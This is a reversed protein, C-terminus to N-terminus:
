DFRRKIFWKDNLSFGLGMRFYNEATLGKTKTGRTGYEFSLHVRDTYRKFPLSVGATFGMYKLDTQRVRVYDKGYFAGFRYTVRNFYKYISEPDPTVQMGVNMRWSLDVVSDQLDGFGRFQSWQSASFDIGALWKDTNSLTVGFSYAMPLTVSGNENETFFATDRAISGKYLRTSMIYEDRLGVLKQSPTLTAGLTLSLKKSLDTKYQAGLKYNLGRLQIYRTFESNLVNTDVLTEMTSSNRFNGFGYSLDFGISFGKYTGGFGLHLANLGGEGSYGQLTNGIDPIDVSDALKYYVRTVPKMGLNMGLYKGLPIGVNFYSLTASGTRYSETGSKIGRTRFEGGLEYTTLKLGAFSAPNESNITFPENIASSLHGIGKQKVNLGSILEGLGYRSYPENESASYQAFSQM